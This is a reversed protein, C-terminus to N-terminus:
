KIECYGSAEESPSKDQHRAGKSVYEDYSSPKRIAEQKKDFKTDERDVKNKEIQLKKLLKLNADRAKNTTKIKNELTKKTASLKSLEELIGKSSPRTNEAKVKYKEKQELQTQEQIRAKELETKLSKIERNQTEIKKNLDKISHEISVYDKSSSHIMKGTESQTLKTLRKEKAKLEKIQIKISNATQEAKKLDSKLQKQHNLLGPNGKLFRKNLKKSSRIASKLHNITNQTKTLDTNKNELDTKIQGLQEQMVPHMLRKHKIEERSSILKQVTPRFGLSELIRLFRSPTKRSLTEEITKQTTEEINEPTLKAILVKIEKHIQTPKNTDSSLYSMNQLAAKIIRRESATLKDLNNYDAKCLAEWLAITDAKSLHSSKM